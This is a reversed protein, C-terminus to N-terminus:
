WAIGRRRLPLGHVVVAELRRALVQLVEASYWDPDAPVDLAMDLVSYASPVAAAARAFSWVSRKGIEEFRGAPALLAFSTSIFDASLSNLVGDLRRGGLQSALSHGCSAAQRSSATSRVGCCRLLHHKRPAGATGFLRLRLWAAYESAALGVGGATAHVLLRRSGVLRSRVFAVHVTCWTSILTTAAEFSVASPKRVQLRADCCVHSALCANSIGFCADRQAIHAVQSGAHEVM